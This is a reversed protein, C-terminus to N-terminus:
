ILNEHYGSYDLDLFPNDASAWPQPHSGSASAKMIRSTVYASDLIHTIFQVLYFFNKQKMTSPLCLASSSPM